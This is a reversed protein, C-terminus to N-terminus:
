FYYYYYSLFFSLLAPSLVLFLELYRLKLSILGSTFLQLVKAKSLM